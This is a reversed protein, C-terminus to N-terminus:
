EQEEKRTRPLKRSHYYLWGGISGAAVLPVGMLFLASWFFGWDPRDWPASVCTACALAEAPLLVLLLALWASM